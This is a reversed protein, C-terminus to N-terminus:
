LELGPLLLIKREGRRESLNQSRGLRKDLPVLFEKKPALGDQAHFQGIVDL